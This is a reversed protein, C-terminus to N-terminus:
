PDARVRGGPAKGWSSGAHQKMYGRYAGNLARTNGVMAHRWWPMRTMMGSRMDRRTLKFNALSGIGGLASAAPAFVDRATAGALSLGGGIGAAITTSQRLTLFSIIALIAVAGATGIPHLEGGTVDAPGLFTLYITIIIALLVAVVVAVLTYQLAQAAWLEFFRGLVPFMLCALFLPGLAILIALAVKALLAIAAGAITSLISAAFLTLGTLGWGVKEGNLWGTSRGRDFCDAALEMGSSLAADLVAYINGGDDMEPLSYAFVAVLGAEISAFFDVIYAQYMDASLALTSVLAVRIIIALVDGVPRASMGLMIRCLTIAVYLYVGQLIVPGIDTIIRDVAPALFVDVAGEFSRGIYRYINIEFDDMATLRRVGARRGADRALAM